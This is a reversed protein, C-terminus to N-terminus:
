AGDNLGEDFTEGDKDYHTIMGDPTDEYIGVTEVIEGDLGHIRAIEEALEMSDALFSLCFPREGLHPEDPHVLSRTVTFVKLMEEM